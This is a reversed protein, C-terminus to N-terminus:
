KEEAHSKLLYDAICGDLKLEAFPIRNFRKIGLVSGLTDQLEVQFSIFANQSIPSTEDGLELIKYHISKELRTYGDYDSSQCGGLLIAILVVFVSGRM